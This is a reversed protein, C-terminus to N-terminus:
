LSTNVFNVIHEDTIEDVRHRQNSPSNDGTMVAVVRVDSHINTFIQEIRVRDDDTLDLGYTENLTTIINSLYDKEPERVGGSGTAIGAIATDERQLEIAGAYTQQIRFSELDVADTIGRPLGAGTRKPLKLNLNRAFVYLRELDLDRFAILQSVYGYLRIFSQLTSRFEERQDEKEIARWQAVVRDLIPQMLEGPRSPDFFVEAFELVDRRTYVEFGELTSELDYLKNPDTEEELYAAGYYKQFAERIEEAENVFDLVVTSEKGRMSRNLRSLTQVAKVDGLKKDVWMTHLLPEDFGTQFKEAVILIRYEPLKFADPISVRPPLRNLSNETHEALSDPDVVTGSFAVLPKCALRRREMEERFALYYRVAHLRSRTVLM